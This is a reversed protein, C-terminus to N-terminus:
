VFLLKTISGALVLFLLLDNGNGRGVGMKWEVADEESVQGRLQLLRQKTPSLFVDYTM